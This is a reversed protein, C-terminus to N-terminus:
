SGCLDLVSEQAPQDPQGKWDHEEQKKEASAIKSASTRPTGEGRLADNWEYPSNPDM